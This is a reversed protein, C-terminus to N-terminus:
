KVKIKTFTNVNNAQSSDVGLGLQGSGNFGCSWISGTKTLLYTFGGGTNIDKISRIGLNALDDDICRFTTVQEDVPLGVGFSGNYNKGAIWISGDIKQVFTCYHCDLIKDVNSISTSKTWQATGNASNIGLFYQTGGAGWLDNNNDVYLTCRHGCVIQKVNSLTFLSECSNNTGNALQNYINSGFYYVTGSTNLVATHDQGMTIKKANSVGAQEFSYYIEGTTGRGLKWYDNYGATYICNNYFSIYGSHDEGACIDSAYEALGGNSVKCQTFVNFTANGLNVGLQGKDNAGTAWVTSDNKRILTHYYGCAVQAVDTAIQVFKTRDTNDGTGLQGYYNYGCGWLTGDTKLIMCHMDGAEIQQIDCGGLSMEAIAELLQEYTFSSTVELGKDNLINFLTSTDSDVNSQLETLQNTLTTRVTNQEDILNNKVNTIENSIDIFSSSTSVASSGLSDIIYQKGASISEDGSTGQSIENIAGVVNNSTTELDEIDGIQENFLSVVQEESMGSNDITELLDSSLNDQSIKSM